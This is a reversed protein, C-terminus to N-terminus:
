CLRIENFVASELVELATYQIGTHGAASLNSSYGYVSSRNFPVVPLM